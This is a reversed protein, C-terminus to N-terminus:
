RFHGLKKSDRGSLDFYPPTMTQQSTVGIVVLILAEEFMRTVMAFVSPSGARVNWGPVNLSEDEPHGRLAM